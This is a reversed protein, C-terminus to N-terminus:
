ITIQTIILMLCIKHMGKIIKLGCLILYLRVPSNKLKTAGAKVRLNLFFFFNFVKYTRSQCGTTYQMWEFLKSILNGKHVHEVFLKRRWKEGFGKSRLQFNQRPGIRKDIPNPRRRNNTVPTKRSRWQEAEGSFSEWDMPPPFEQWPSLISPFSSRLCTM